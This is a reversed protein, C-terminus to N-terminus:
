LGREYDFRCLRGIASMNNIIVGNPRVTFDGVSQEFHVGHGEIQQVLGIVSVSNFVDIM